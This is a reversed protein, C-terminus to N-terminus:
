SNLKKEVLDLVDGVTECDELEADTIASNPNISKVYKDLEIQLSDLLDDTYDLNTTLKKGKIAPANTPVSYKGAVDLVIRIVRDSDVESNNPM